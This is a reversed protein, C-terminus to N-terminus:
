IILFLYVKELDKQLIYNRPFYIEFGLIGVNEIPKKHSISNMSPNLDITNQSFWRRFIDM